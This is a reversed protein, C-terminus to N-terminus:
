GNEHPDGLQSPCTPNHTLALIFDLPLAEGTLLRTVPFGVAYSQVCNMSRRAIPGAFVM